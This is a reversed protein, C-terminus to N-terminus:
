TPSNPSLKLQRVTWANPDSEAGVNQSKSQLWNAHTHLLGMVSASAEFDFDFNRLVDDWKNPDDTFLVADDEYNIDDIDTFDNGVDIGISSSCHRM